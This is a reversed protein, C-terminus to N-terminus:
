VLGREDQFERGLCLQDLGQLMVNVLFFTLLCSIKNCTMKVM